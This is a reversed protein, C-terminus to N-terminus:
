RALASQAPVLTAATVAVSVGACTLLAWALRRRTIQSEPSAKLIRRIRQPLFAGPMAAGVIEVRAGAGTVTRALSLLYECYEAPQHGRALVAADCADEALAALGASSGGRWRTSGSCRAISCRSVVSHASRPPACAGARAAPGRGLTCTVMSDLRGPADRGSSVLRGDRARLVPPEDVSRFAARRSPYHAPGPRHWCDSSRPSCRRWPCLDRTRYSALFHELRSACRGNAPSVGVPTASSSDGAPAVFPVHEVPASPEVVSSSRTPLVPLAAKPGWLTWTPLTLMALLVVTWAAHRGSATTIRLLRLVAAAAIALLVARIASEILVREM